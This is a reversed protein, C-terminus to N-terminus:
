RYHLQNSWWPWDKSWIGSRPRITRGRIHTLLWTPSEVKRTAWWKGMSSIPEVSTWQITATASMAGIWWSTPRLTWMARSAAMWEMEMTRLSPTKTRSNDLWSKCTKIRCWLHTSMTPTSYFGLPISFVMFIGDNFGGLDSLLAFLTYAKRKEVKKDQSM